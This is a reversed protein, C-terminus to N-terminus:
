VHGQQTERSDATGGLESLTREEGAGETQVPVWHNSKTSTKDFQQNEHSQINNLTM